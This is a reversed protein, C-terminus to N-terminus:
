LLWERAPLGGLRSRSFVPGDTCVFRAGINCHGCKGIGCKMYRELVLYIDDTRFGTRILKEVVYRLMVAPGCVYTVGDSPELEHTQWLSTVVGVHGQWHEDPKDVSVRVQTDPADHWRKLDQNFCIDDPTRAGYFIRIAGVEGRRHLALHILSRLPALGIGGAIFYLNKGRAQEFSFPTGYPGRIHMRDGPGLRHLARTVKGAARITLELYERHFPPSAISIPVEGVGLVSVQVFQGPAHKFSAARAEDQFVVAFTSTDPTEKRVSAVRAPCPIYENNV